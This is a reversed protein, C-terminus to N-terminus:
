SLDFVNLVYKRKRDIVALLPMISYFQSSKKRCWEQERPFHKFWKTMHIHYISRQLPPYSTDIRGDARFLLEELKPYTKGADLHRSRFQNYDSILRKVPDRLILLLKARPITALLRAPAESTHFYGPTKEMALQEETVAPIMSRYWDTGKAFHKDFYHIEPGSAKIKPHLKLFELLARTGGKKAGIIVVDPLRRTTNPAIYGSCILDFDEQDAAIDESTEDVDDDDNDDDGTIANRRSNLRTESREPAATVSRRREKRGGSSSSKCGEVVLSVSALCLVVLVITSLRPM